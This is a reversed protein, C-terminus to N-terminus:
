KPAKGETPFARALAAMRVYICNTIQDTVVSSAGDAAADDLEIGRNLPGPHMVIADKAASRLSSRNVQYMRAYEKTSSLLGDTMRERQLRLCMVVDAGELGQRLDYFVTGPLKATSTPLLTRPGVFRVEAGMKHFLWANSRAVRSHLVDGVIAVRLGDLSGKREIITLADGLAQTPHEHAGDGANIVPGGFYDEALKPSGSSPHRMVLCELREYKLTLVTDKLTEGKSVSSGSGSFNVSRWGLYNVAQEFAVRTRTSNEFFLLGISRAPRIRCDKGAEVKKKFAAASDLLAQITEPELHRIALLSKSM